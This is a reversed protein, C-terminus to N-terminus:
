GLLAMFYPNFIILGMVVSIFAGILCAAAAVDKAIKALPHYKGGSALDTLAEIATNLCELCLMWGILLLVFLWDLQTIEFFFGVLLVLATIGLHIQFNRQSRIVHGFGEFAYGFSQWLNEARPVPKEEKLSEETKPNEELSSM